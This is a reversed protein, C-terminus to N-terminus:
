ETLRCPCQATALGFAGADHLGRLVRANQVPMWIEQGDHDAIRTEVPSVCLVSSLVRLRLFAAGAVLGCPDRTEEPGHM